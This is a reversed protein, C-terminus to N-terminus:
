RPAVPVVYFPGFTRVQDGSQPLLSELRPFHGLQLGMWTGKHEVVVYRGDHRRLNDLIREEYRAWEPTGPEPVTLGVHFWLAPNLSPRGTLAYLISADGLLFFNGPHTDFFAIVERFHEARYRGYAPDETAEPMAFELFDMSTAIGVGDETAPTNRFDNLRRTVTWELHFRVAEFAGVAVAVLLIGTALRPAADPAARSWAVAALGLAAPLYALGYAAQNHTAGVYLVTVAALGAALWLSPLESRIRKARADHSRAAAIAALAFAGPALALTPYARMGGWLLRAWPVGALRAVGVKRPLEIVSVRVASWDVGLGWGAAIALAGTGLIGGAFAGLFRARRGGAVALGLIAVVPLVFATPVHKCLAGLVLAGGSAAWWAASARSEGARAGRLVAYAALLGFAFAHHDHSPVGVGPYLMLAAFTGFALAVPRSGGALRLVGYTLAAFAGNVLAAHLCYVFWSVGFVSFVAGQILIPLSGSPTTFDRYLVQGSAIRWGGDFTISHDLPMYGRRGYELCVLVGFLTLAGVLLSSGIGTVQRADPRVAGDSRTQRRGV